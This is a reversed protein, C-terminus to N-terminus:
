KHIKKGSGEARLVTPKPPSPAQPSPHSPHVPEQKSVKPPPPEVLSALPRPPFRKRKQLHSIIQTQFSSFLPSVSPSLTELSPLSSLFPLFFYTPPSPSLVCPWEFLFPHRVLGRLHFDALSTHALPLPSACHSATSNSTPCRRCCKREAPM